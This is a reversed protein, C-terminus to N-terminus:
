WASLCLRPSISTDPVPDAVVHHFSITNLLTDGRGGGAEPGLSHETLIAQPYLPSTYYIALQEWQANRSINYGATVALPLITIQSFLM